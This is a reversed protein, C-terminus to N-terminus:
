KEAIVDVTFSITGTAPGFAVENYARVYFTFSPQKFIDTVDSYQNELNVTTAGAPIETIYAVKTSGIQDTEVYAELFKINDFTVGPTTITISMSKAEIKKVQSLSYGFDNLSSEIESTIVESSFEKWEFDSNLTVNNFGSITVPVEFREEKDGCSTFAFTTAVFLLLLLTNKM